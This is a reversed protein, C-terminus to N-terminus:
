RECLGMLIFLREVWKAGLIQCRHLNAGLLVNSVEDICSSYSNVSIGSIM